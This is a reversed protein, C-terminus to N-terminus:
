WFQPHHNAIRDGTRDPSVLRRRRPTLHRPRVPPIVDRGGGFRTHHHHLIESFLDWRESLARWADRDDVPTAQAAAAFATLDRRFGHHMVYMMMMDVPGAHAATQGPFVLQEPWTHTTTTM